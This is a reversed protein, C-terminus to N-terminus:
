GAPKAAAAFNVGQVDANTITVYQVAPTFTLTSSQPAIRYTGPALNVFPYYTGNSGTTTTQLATTSGPLTLVVSIQAVQTNPTSPTVAGYIRYTTAVVPTAAFNVGSVNANTITVYQYGPNFTLTNSAPAVRYSGPAVNTFYYTGGTATTTTQLVTTSGSATLNITIGAVQTGSASYTVAGYIHYTTAVPTAAFNVGSVNANTITVYQYGPNFTLTNSVPVVRYNGPAVNVFYYTGGTATTTTQLTTTSGAATLNITIGGVQTGSASYTVAGYIHYTSLVPAAVFNIGSVNANSVTVELTTPSFVLATSQPTVWYTGPAVGVFGYAGTSNTTTTVASISSNTSSLRLSIGSVSIGTTNATVQGYIHYTPVVPTAIFNIGTVNGYSVSVTRYPSTFTYGPASPVLTYSASAMGTVTYKGDSNTTVSQNTGYVSVTVGAVGVQNATTVQGSISYTTAKAGTASLAAVILFFLGAWRSIILM